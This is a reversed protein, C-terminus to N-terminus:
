SILSGERADERQSGLAGRHEAAALRVQVARAPGLRDLDRLAQALAQRVVEDDGLSGMVSREHLLPAPDSRGARALHGLQDRHVDQVDIPGGLMDAGRLYRFWAAVALTLLPARHARSRAELLSPLLYAPVKTSGRGCLRSLPDSIHANAFRRLLTRQYEELDVGPIAPLLPAIEERMLRTVYGRMLPNAMMAATTRHGALHGLYAMASHGGNLLRCKMLKYPSVDPVFQVGVDELPPRGSVFADEVVWQSFPETLVPSRDVVGFRTAVLISIGATPSPTIRDVMGNPFSVNHQIWRALLTDVLGAFSVLATRAATGSDPLNDCSLVTFGGLGSARRRALAAALYGFWTHPRALQRADDRVERSSERFEGFRDLNYGDGTITLTVMKTAPDALRDILARRADPAYLYDRMAGIVRACEGDQSREVVTYLCDQRQLAALMARSRLGAGTEGWELNGARALQDLYVAQHARHFGGVGIHVIAPRLLARDYSPADVRGRLAALSAECLHM